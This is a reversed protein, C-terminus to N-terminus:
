LIYKRRLTVVKEKTSLRVYKTQNNRKTNNWIKFCYLEYQNFKTVRLKQTDHNCIILLLISIKFQM